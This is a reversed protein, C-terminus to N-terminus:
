QGNVARLTPAELHTHTHAIREQKKTGEESAVRDGIPWESSSTDAGRAKRSGQRKKGKEHTSNKGTLAVTDVSPHKGKTM